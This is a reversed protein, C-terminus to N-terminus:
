RDFNATSTDLGAEELLKRYREKNFTRDELELWCGEWCKAALVESPDDALSEQSSVKEIVWCAAKLKITENSSSLAEQLAKVAQGQMNMICGQLMAKSENQQKHLFCAFTTKKLWCYITGRDLELQKAAETISTGAALMIACKEQLATLGILKDVKALETSNQQKKNM